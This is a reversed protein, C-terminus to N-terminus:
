ITRKPMRVYYVFVYVYIFILVKSLNYEYSSYEFDTEDIRLEGYLM